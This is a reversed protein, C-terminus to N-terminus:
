TKLIKDNRKINEFDNGMDEFHVVHIQRGENKGREYERRMMEKLYNEKYYTEGLIEFVEDTIRKIEITYNM